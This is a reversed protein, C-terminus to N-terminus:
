VMGSNILFRKRNDYFDYLDKINPVMLLMGVKLWGPSWTNDRPDDENGLKLEMPNLISDAQLLFWWLCVSDYYEDSVLDSRGGDTRRVRKYRKERTYSMSM